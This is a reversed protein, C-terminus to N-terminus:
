LRVGGGTDSKYVVENIREALDEVMGQYRPGIVDHLADYRLGASDKYHISFDETTYLIDVTAYEKGAEITRTAVIHGPSVTALTEWEEKLAAYRIAHEMEELTLPRGDAHAVPMHEFNDPARLLCGALATLLLLCLAFLRTQMRM